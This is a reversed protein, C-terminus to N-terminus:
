FPGPSAPSRHPWPETEPLTPPSPPREWPPKEKGSVTDDCATNSFFDLTYSSSPSSNLAAQVAAGGNSAVSTLVPYNQLNNPGTDADGEDNVTVGDRNLEIGLAANDFISNSLILNGTGADVFLAVGVWRLTPSSIEPEPNPGEWPTGLRETPFGSARVKSPCPLTGTVDMGLTNGQIVNGSANPGDVRIGGSNGSILNGAGSETGGITNGPADQDLFRRREGGGHHRTVDTGIYNGQILNGTADLGAVTICDGRTGPSSTGPAPRPAESLTTPRTRQRLSRYQQGPGDHGIADTGILNGEIVTGSSGQALSIGNTTNGSIM